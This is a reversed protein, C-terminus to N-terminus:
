RYEILQGTKKDMVANAVQEFMALEGMEKDIASHNLAKLAEFVLNFPSSSPHTKRTKSIKFSQDNKLLKEM